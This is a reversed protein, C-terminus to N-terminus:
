LWKQVPPGEIPASATSIELAPLQKTTLRLHHESGLRELHVKRLLAQLKAFSRIEQLEALKWVEEAWRAEQLLKDASVPGVVVHLVRGEPTCFYSAVNGGQKEGRATLRFTSIKQYSSVFYM